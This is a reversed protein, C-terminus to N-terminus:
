TNGHKEFLLIDVTKDTCDAKAGTHSLGSLKAILVYFLAQYTLPAVSVPEYDIADTRFGVPPSYVSGALHNADKLADQSCYDTVVTCQNVGM